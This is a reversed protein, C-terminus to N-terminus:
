CFDNEDDSEYTEFNIAQDIITQKAVVKKAILSDISGDVVLHQVVVCNNQSIRHLRDEAQTINGPVFDLEAFVVTSAATLTFGVGAATISGIFVRVNPNTQFADVADQRNAMSTDGTIVVPKFDALGDTIARIVDIHHAFIVLKDVEALVSLCHSVVNPVKILATKHRIEFITGRAFNFEVNLALVAERYEEESFNNKSSKLNKEKARVANLQAMVIAEAKLAASHESSCPIEIIQRRKPPLEILVDAKLRRVMVSERLIAQLEKLNSSGTFDWGYSAKYGGCYRMGFAFFGPWKQEDLIHLLHWLESPMNAIPTGTLLVKNPIRASITKVLKSRQAKSNKVYHAEDCVILDWSQSNITKVHKNLLDYNAVVIDTDPFVGNAIGITLSKTLWKTLERQWNIKLSAPCVILIKKYNPKANILGVTEVSKGLGMDDALLTSMRSAAFAIGAKQYPLYSLGDPAPVEFDANTATSHKIAEVRQQQLTSIIQLTAEEAYCQLDLAIDLPAEWRKETGNWRFGASKPIDKEAFTAEAFFISNKTDYVLKM